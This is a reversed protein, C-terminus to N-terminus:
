APVNVRQDAPQDGTAANRTRLFLKVGEEFVLLAVAGLLCILWQTGTLDTTGLVRQLIGIETALITLVLALGYLRLQEWGPLSARNFITGMDERVSLGAIVHMLSYTVILMSAGVIAEYSDEGLVRVILAISSMVIGIAALRVWQSRQLIPADVPRPLRGMLGVTPRDFGLAAAIPIDIAFNIWLLQLPDLPTGNAVSFIGAGIYLAMFGV